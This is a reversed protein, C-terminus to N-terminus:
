RVGGMLRKIWPVLALLVLAAVGLMAAQQLFFIALGHPDTGDYGGGLIGALKNGWAAALFWVGLVLGVLNPPALKTM